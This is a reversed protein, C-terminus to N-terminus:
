WKGTEVEEGEWNVIVPEKYVEVIVEQPVEIYEIVTIVEPEQEAGEDEEGEEEEEVEEPTPESPFCEEPVPPLETAEEM